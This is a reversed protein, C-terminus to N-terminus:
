LNNPNSKSDDFTYDQQLGKFVVNILRTFKSQNSLPLFYNIKKYRLFSILLPIKTRTPLMEPVERFAEYISIGKFKYEILKLIYKVHRHPQIM